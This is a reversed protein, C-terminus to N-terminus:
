KIISYKQTKYSPCHIFYKSLLTHRVIHISLLYNKTPVPLIGFRFSFHNLEFQIQTTTRWGADILMKQIVDFYCVSSNGDDFSDCCRMKKQFLRWIFSMTCKFVHCNKHIAYVNSLRLTRLKGWFCDYMVCKCVIASTEYALRNGFM